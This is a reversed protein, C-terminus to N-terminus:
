RPLGPPPSAPRRERDHRTPTLGFVRVRRASVSDARNPALVIKFSANGWVPKLPVFAPGFIAALADLEEQKTSTSM